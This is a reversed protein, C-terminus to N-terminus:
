APSRAIAEIMRVVDIMPAVDHVRVIRAGKATAWGVTAATGEVRKEVPADLVEGIFSKRSTGALVPYGLAVIEELRRLLELNQAPTKAFGFGPDLVIADHEVGTTELERARRKLWEAVESVVDGYTALSRMTAPTGRSHMVIMAAGTNRALPDLSRDGPEGTTDNIISAGVELAGDAVEAKRTDIAIPIGLQASLAEIVPIVRRLEEDLEVPEAGPRTSEGGVDIIGAGGAAMDLGHAVAADADLWLGGDSFSDPTVNLVGMVVVRDLDLVHDRCRLKM